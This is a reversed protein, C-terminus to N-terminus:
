NLGVDDKMQNSGSSGLQYRQKYEKCIWQEGKLCLFSKLIFYIVARNWLKQPNKM